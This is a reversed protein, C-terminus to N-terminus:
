GEVRGGGGGGPAGGGGFEGPVEIVGMLGAVSTRMNNV